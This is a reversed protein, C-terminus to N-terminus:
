LSTRYGGCVSLFDRIERIKGVRWEDDSFRTSTRGSELEATLAAALLESGQATVQAHDGTEGDPIVTHQVRVGPAVLDIYPLIDGFWSSSVGAHVWAIGSHRASVEGGCPSQLQVNRTSTSGGRSVEPVFPALGILHVSM